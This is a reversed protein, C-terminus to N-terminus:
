GWNGSVTDPDVRSWGTKPFLNWIKAALDGRGAVFGLQNSKPMLCFAEYDFDDVPVLGGKESIRFFIFSCSSAVVAAYMGAWDWAKQPTQIVAQARGCALWALGLAGSGTTLVGKVNAAITPLIQTFNDYLLTDVGALVTSKSAPLLPITQASYFSLKHDWEYVWVQNGIEGVLLFGDNVGPAYLVSGVFVGGEMIGGVVSWGGTDNSYRLTSDVPDIIAVVSGSELIGRPDNKPLVAPNKSDEECLIRVGPIGAALRDIIIEQAKEDGDTSVSRHGEGAKVKAVRPVLKIKEGAEIIAEALIKLRPDLNLHQVPEREM